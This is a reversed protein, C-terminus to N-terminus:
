ICSKDRTRRAVVLRKLRPVTVVVVVDVMMMGPVFQRM